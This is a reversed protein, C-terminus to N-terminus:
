NSLLITRNASAASTFHHMAPPSATVDKGCPTLKICARENTASTSLTKVQLISISSLELRLSSIQEFILLRQERLWLNTSLAHM